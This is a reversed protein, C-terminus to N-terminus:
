QDRYQEVSEFIVKAEPVAEYFAKYTSRGAEVMKNMFAQDLAMVHVGEKAAFEALLEAEQKKVLDWTYDISQKSAEQVWGKQEETLGQYFAENIYNGHMLLIHGTKQIYPTMKDMGLNKMTILANGSGDVVGQELGSYVETFAMAQGSMGLAAALNMYLDINPMRMRLSSYDEFTNVPERTSFYRYGHPYYDLSRLDTKEIVDESVLRGTEGATAKQAEDMSNFLYPAELLAAKPDYAALETGVDIMQINGRRASDIYSDPTGLQNNPFVQVTMQGGSVQELVEAFKRQQATGPHDEPAMGAFKIVIPENSDPAASEEAENSCGALLAVSAVLLLKKAHKVM